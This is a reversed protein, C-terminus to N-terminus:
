ANAPGWLARQTTILINSLGADRVAVSRGTKASLSLSMRALTEERHILMFHFNYSLTPKNVRTSYMHLSTQSRLGRVM